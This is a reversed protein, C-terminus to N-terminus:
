GLFRAFVTVTSHTEIRDAALSDSDIQDLDIADFCREIASGCEGFSEERLLLQIVRSGVRSRAPMQRCPERGLLRDHLRDSFGPYREGLDPDSDVARTSGPDLQAAPSGLDRECSSELHRNRHGVGPMEGSRHRERPIRM